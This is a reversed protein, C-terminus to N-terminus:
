QFHELGPQDPSQAVRVLSLHQQGYCPSRVLPDKFTRGIWVMRHNHEMHIYNEVSKAFFSSFLLSYKLKSLGTVNHLRREVLIVLALSFKIRMHTLISGYV